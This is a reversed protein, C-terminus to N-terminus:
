QSTFDYCFEYFINKFDVDMIKYFNTNGAEDMIEFYFKNIDIYDIIKKFLNNVYYRNTGPYILVQKEEPFNNYKENSTKEIILNKKYKEINNDLISLVRDSKLYDQDNENLYSILNLYFVNDKVFDEDNKENYYRYFHYIDLQENEKEFDELNKNVIKKLWKRIQNIKLSSLPILMNKNM